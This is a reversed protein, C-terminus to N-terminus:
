NRPALGWSARWTEGAALRILGVGSNLADTPCTMPEIAIARHVGGPERATERAPDNPFGRPTFVVTYGFATDAWLTLTRGDPASLVHEFRPEGGGPAAVASLDAFGTDLDLGALAAGNPLAALDGELPRKEVPILRDDTVYASGARVTLTLQETPVDGIRLYPHTGCGFVAPHAGVNHVEHTVTLGADGLTYTVATDLIFPWGHRPYISAALTVSGAAVDVARYATDSLLGHIANGRAPETLALQQTAGDWRWRGGAVRNPWPMLVLGCSMPPTVADPWTETLLTGGVSFERLVAGVQGVRALAPGRRLWFQEGSAARPPAPTGGTGDRVGDGRARGDRICDSM